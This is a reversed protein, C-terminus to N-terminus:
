DKSLDLKWIRLRESLEDLFSAASGTTQREPVTWLGLLLPHRFTGGAKADADSETVRIAFPRGGEELPGALDAARDVGYVLVVDPDHEMVVTALRVTETEVDPESSVLPADAVSIHAGEDALSALDTDIDGGGGNAPLQGFALLRLPRGLHARARVRHIGYMQGPRDSGRHPATTSYLCALAPLELPRRRATLRLMLDWDQCMPLAEDFHAEPLGARHAMVNQDVFNSSELRRRDWPDFSM